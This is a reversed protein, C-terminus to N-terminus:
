ATRRDSPRRVAAGRGHVPCGSTGPQCRWPARGGLRWWGDRGGIRHPASRLVAATTVLPQGPRLLGALSHVATVELAEEADLAPLLGPLREAIMTKGSGPPGVMMMHHMGAAAVEAAARATVQGVVDAMDLALRSLAPESATEDASVQPPEDPVLDGRLLALLQRLSRIGLVAMEPLLTAEAANAEPVVVQSFGCRSSALIAPLVGPVARARGDLGLEGFFVVGDLASPPVAGAAAAVAVAIALDFHSGKPLDAPSLSVTRRRQPWQEGSNVLASRVRDRAENLTADPLGVVVFGPIGNAIDAEVEVMRGEIGLLAVCHTRAVTM